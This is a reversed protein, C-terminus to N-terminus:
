IKTQGNEYRADCLSTVSAAEGAVGRQDRRIRDLEDSLQQATQVSFLSVPRCDILARESRLFTLTQGGGRRKNLGRVLAPDDVALVDGAPTEVDVALDAPDAVVAESLEEGRMSKVPYRWISEVTGIKTM